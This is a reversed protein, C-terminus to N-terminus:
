GNTNAKGKIDNKAEERGQPTDKSESRGAIDREDADGETEDGRRLQRQIENEDTQSAEDSLEKVNWEDREGDEKGHSLGDRRDQSFSKLGEIKEPM